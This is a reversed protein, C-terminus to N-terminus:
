LSLSHTASRDEKIEQINCTNAMKSPRYILCNIYYEMSCAASRAIDSLHWMYSHLSRVFSSAVSYISRLTAAKLVLSGGVRKLSKDGARHLKIMQLSQVITSSTETTAMAMCKVPWEYAPISRMACQCMCVTGQMIPIAQFLSFQPRPSSSSSGDYLVRIAYLISYHLTGPWIHNVFSYHEGAPERLFRCGLQWM